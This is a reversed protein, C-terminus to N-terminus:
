AVIETHHASILAVYMRKEEHPNEYIEDSAEKSQSSGCGLLLGVWLVMGWNKLLRTSM